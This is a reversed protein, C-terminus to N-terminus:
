ENRKRLKARGPGPVGFETSTDIVRENRQERLVTRSVGFNAMMEADSPLISGVPYRGAVISAGIENIVFTHFNRAAPKGSLSRLLSGPESM